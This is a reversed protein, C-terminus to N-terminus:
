LESGRLSIQRLKIKALRKVIPNANQSYKKLIAFDWKETYDTSLFIRLAEPNGRVSRPKRKKTM